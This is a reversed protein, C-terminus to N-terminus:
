PSGVGGKLRRSLELYERMEEPSAEKRAHREKLTALRARLKKGELASLVIEWQEGREGSRDCHAWGASILRMPFSDGMEAWRSRLEATSDGSLISIAMSKARDDSLLRLVTEPSSEARRKEDTWLLYCLAAEWPDVDIEVEAREEVDKYVGRSVPIGKKREQSASGRASRLLDLMEPLLIGLGQAVQSIHRNAELPPLEALGRIIERRAETRRSEDALDSAKVRIHFLPLPECRQLLAEFSKVGGAEGLLDDPDKGAPLVVVRIDLGSRQLIYMGRITAEQGATDADYCILCQDAFRKLLTAQEDTLSTGLSAVTETFGAMHLKIADMYGEVLISRGKERISQRATHLLYLTKRKSYLDSEPSNIYKAGEGDVLRGGFATLRGQVDRIPFIIRGRFRDYRRKESEALLGAAMSDSEPVKSEELARKLSDWSPPSWGIEFGAADSSSIGRRELYKRAGEGGPGELSRRFFALATDVAGSAGSRREPRDSRRELTVGARDALMSLAEPFSLGEREMVFSYIDGGRGCGFCHYTQRDSSVYFSPTKESHFPCLGRFNKGVRRLQVTEGILEVIDIRDKTERVSDRDM